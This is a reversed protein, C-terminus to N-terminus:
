PIANMVVHENVPQSLVIPAHICARLVFWATASATLFVESPEAERTTFYKKGGASSRILFVYQMCPWSVREINTFTCIKIWQIIFITQIEKQRAAKQRIFEGIFTNM